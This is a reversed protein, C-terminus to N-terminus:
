TVKSGPRHIGTDLESQIRRKRKEAVNKGRAGSGCSEAHRKGDLDYWGVYWAAKDGRKAVHSGYQFIWVRKAM